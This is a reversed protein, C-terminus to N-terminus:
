QIYLLFFASLHYPNIFYIIKQYFLVQDVPYIFSSHLSITFHYLFSQLCCYRSVWPNSNLRIPTTKDHDTFLLFLYSKSYLATRGCFPEEAKVREGHEWKYPALKDEYERLLHTTDKPPSIISAPCRISLLESLASEVQFM